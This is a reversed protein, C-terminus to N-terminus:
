IDDTIIKYIEKCSLAKNIIRFDKILGKFATNGTRYDRGIFFESHATSGSGSRASSNVYVLNGNIFCNVNSLSNQVIAIHYWAGDYMATGSIPVDVGGMDYRLLNTDTKEINYLNGDGHYNGFWISRINNQNESKFWFCITHPNTLASAFNSNNIIIASDSGNFYYCNNSITVKNNTVSYHNSSDKVESGKLWLINNNYTYTTLVKNSNSYINGAYLNANGNIASNYTVNSNLYFNGNNAILTDWSNGDRYFNIGECAGDALDDFYLSNLGVIDSNQADLGYCKNPYYQEGFLSLSGTLTGGSKQLYNSLDLNITELSKNDKVAYQAM